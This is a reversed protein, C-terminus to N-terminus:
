ASFYFGSITIDSTSTLNTISMTVISGGTTSMENLNILQTNHVIRGAVYSTGVDISINQIIAVAGPDNATTNVATIPPGSIQLQGSAAGITLASVIVRLSYFVINGIRTYEGVQFAYSISGPNASSGTIIPSWTGTVLLGLVGTGNVNGALAAAVGTGLGTIGGVPVSSASTASGATTASTANGSLSGVFTTTTLTNTSPNFGLGTGLNVVQNGNASSAVFLPFYTTNSSSGLTVVKNAAFNSYLMAADNTIGYPSQGFYMLDTSVNSTIPNADYVQKINEGAM